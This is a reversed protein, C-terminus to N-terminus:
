TDNKIEGLILNIIDNLNNRIDNEWFIFVKFNKNKIREIRKKDLKWKKYSIMQLHNNYDDAKYIEPNCHWYDGYCEIVINKPPYAIDVQYVTGKIKFEKQFIPDIRKLKEYLKKHTSSYRKKTKRIANKTQVGYSVGYRKLMTKTRKRKVEKRNMANTVALRHKESIGKRNMPNNNKMVKSLNPNAKGKQNHGHIYRNGPNTIRGCGCECSQPPIIYKVGKGKNWAPVSNHGNIYKNWQHDEKNWAVYSSCGCACLPAEEFQQPYKRIQWNNFQHGKIYRNGPKVERGCGCECYKGSPNRKLRRKIKGM